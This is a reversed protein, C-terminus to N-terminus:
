RRVAAKNQERNLNWYGSKLSQRVKGAFSKTAAKARSLKEGISQRLGKSGLGIDPSPLKPFSAAKGGSSAKVPVSKVATQTAAKPAAAKKAGSKRPAAKKEGGEKKTAAKGKGGKSKSEKVSGGGAGRRTAWGKAAGESTGYNKVPRQVPERNTIPKMNKMNPKNTLAVTDFRLPRKRGDGLDEMDSPLYTPSTFRFNGGTVDRTGCESWRPKGYLGDDRVEVNTIWGAATTRKQMDYSEHEYDLLAEQSARNFAEAQSQLSADDLIQVIQIKGDESTWPHEGKSAIMMFGDDALKFPIFLNSKM